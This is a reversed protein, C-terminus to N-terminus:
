PFMSYLYCYVRTAPQRYMLDHPRSQGRAPRTVRSIDQPMNINVIGRHIKYFMEAQHLLRRDQLTDWGLSTLMETVSAEHSYQQMVFHAAQRQVSEVIRNNRETYPNWASTAYELQPRVLTNYAAVKVEGSCAGLTRRILGQTRSAKSRVQESHANWSLDQYAM